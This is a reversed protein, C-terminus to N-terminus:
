YPVVALEEAAKVVVMAIVVVIAADEVLSNMHTILHSILWPSTRLYTRGSLRM